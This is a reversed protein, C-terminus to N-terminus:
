VPHFPDDDAAHVVALPVRNNRKAGLVGAFYADEYAPGFLNFAAMSGQDLQESGPFKHKEAVIPSESCQIGTFNRLGMM